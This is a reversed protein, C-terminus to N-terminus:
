NQGNQRIGKFSKHIMNEQHIQGKTRIFHREQDKDQFRNDSKLVVVLAKEHKSNEHYIKGM